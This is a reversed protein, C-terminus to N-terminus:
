GVLLWCLDWIPLNKKEKKKRRDIKHRRGRFGTTARGSCVLELHITSSSPARTFSAHTFQGDWRSAGTASPRLLWGTSRMELLIADKPNLQTLSVKGSKKAMSWDSAERVTLCDKWLSPKSSDRAPKWALLGEM